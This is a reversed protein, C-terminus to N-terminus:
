PNKGTVLNTMRQEILPMMEPHTLIYFRRDRMAALTKDAIEEPARGAAILEAVFGRMQAAARLREESLEKPPNKLMSPRNRDSEHIKTNVFAPCLVSVGVESGAAKLESFLTESLTVVAHKTVNYPGMGGPSTLGALSATNVIYGENQEVLKPGFVRMGHIVGWLNVGLVWQWDSTSLQWVSGSTGGVGANNCLVHLTGFREFTKAALADMQAPDSVDTISSLVETGTPLEAIARELAAQEIDVMVLKMGESAFRKALALGIGSAAGTVVAVKDKYDLM